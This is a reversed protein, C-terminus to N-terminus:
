KKQTKALARLQNLRKSLPDNLAVRGGDKHIAEIKAEIAKIEDQISEALTEQAAEENMKHLTGRAKHINYIDRALEKRNHHSSALFEVKHTKGGDYVSYVHHHDDDKKTISVTKVQVQENLFEEFSKM